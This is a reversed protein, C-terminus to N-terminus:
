PFIFKTLVIETQGSGIIEDYLLYGAGMPKYNVHKLFCIAKPNSQGLFRM